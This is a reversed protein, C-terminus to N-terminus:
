GFFISSIVDIIDFLQNQDSIALLLKQSNDLVVLNSVYGLM